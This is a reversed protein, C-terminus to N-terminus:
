QRTKLQKEVEAQILHKADELPGPLYAGAASKHGGGDFKEAIKCIDIDGSSRLSCKIRGDALEVFLVAIEVTSIRQCENILNETDEYTAGTQQFDRQLLYQTAFRGNFHLELTNLMAAMLRLRQPSFNQFLKHYYLTPNVGAEILEACSRFVRSGTNPFQFWGTDAAIAVFLAQAVKETVPWGAFKLFDFIILGTAAATKDVLEVAGLRDGTEHHDIVLISADTKKLFKDFQPLQSFSDTDIIMILNFDGLKGDTLQQLNIDQGFIPVKEAFLFEYWRPLPSLLLLKAEKGLGTLVESMAVLCGCADGDPKTHAALLISSSQNILDVAKQFNVSNAM